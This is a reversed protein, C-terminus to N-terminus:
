ELIFTNLEEVTTFNKVTTKLTHGLQLKSYKHSLSAQHFAIKEEVPLQVLEEDITMLSLPFNGNPILLINSWNIQAKLSMSFTKGNYVFGKFIEAEVFLDIDDILAKKRDEISVEDVINDDNFYYDVTNVNITHRVLKQKEIETLEREILINGSFDRTYPISIM